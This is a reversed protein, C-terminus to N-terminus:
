IVRLAIARVTVLITRRLGASRYFARGGTRQAMRESGGIMWELSHVLAPTTADNNPPNPLTWTQEFPLQDHLTKQPALRSLLTSAAKSWWVLTQQQASGSICKVRQLEVKASVKILLMDLAKVYMHIPLTSSEGDTQCGQQTCYEPLDSDFNIEDALIVDLHEDVIILGLRQTTLDLSLFYPRQSSNNTDHLRSSSPTTSYDMSAATLHPSTFTYTAQDTM